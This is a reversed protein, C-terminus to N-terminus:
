QKIITSVKIYGDNATSVVSDKFSSLNDKINMSAIKEKAVSFSDVANVPVIAEFGGGDVIDMVAEKPTSYGLSSFMSGAMCGILATIGFTPIIAIHYKAMPISILSVMLHDVMLNGYEEPSIKGQALEYGHISGEIALMTLAIVVAPEAKKLAVGFTGARCLTAIVNSISGEVFGESAAIAGEVGTEGFAEEDINGSIAAERLISYIDPGVEFATNIAAMTLGSGVAQKVVYKPSIVSTVSIGFDEPKFKNEKGLEAIAQAEERTLPISETGDPARLRDRLSRLTEQYSKTRASAVDGEIASLDKIRGELYATAESLQDVPIIRIQGEYVSSLIADQTNPDYGRERMYEAFSQPNVNKSKSCYKKYSDIMTTAQAKASESGTKYYKLSANEGWNTTVDVSAFANSGVVESSYASKNAKANINFTDSAWKEALYGAEQATGLSSGASANIDAELKAIGAEIEAIYESGMVASYQANLFKVSYEWGNKFKETDIKSYWNVVKDKTAVATNTVTEKAYGAAEGVTSAAASAKDKASDLSCGVTNIMLIMVITLSLLKNMSM